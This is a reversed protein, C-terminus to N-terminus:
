PHPLQPATHNNWVDWMEIDGVRITEDIRSMDMATGNITNNGLTFERTRDASPETMPDIPALHEPLATSRQLGRHARLLLIDLEDEAGTSRSRSSALGLDQPPREATITLVPGGTGNVLITDGLM